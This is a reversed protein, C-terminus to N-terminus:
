KFECEVIIRKNYVDIGGWKFTKIFTKNKLINVLIELDRVETESLKKKTSPKQKKM